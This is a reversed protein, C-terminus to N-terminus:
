VHSLLLWNHWTASAEQQLHQVYVNACLCAGDLSPVFIALPLQLGQSEAIM